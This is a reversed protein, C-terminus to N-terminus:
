KYPLSGGRTFSFLLFFFVNEQREIWSSTESRLDRWVTKLLVVVDSTWPRPIDCFLFINATQSQRVKINHLSSLMLCLLVHKAWIEQLPPRNRALLLARCTHFRSTDATDLHLLVWEKANRLRRFLGRCKSLWNSERRRDDRARWIDLATSCFSPQALIAPADRGVLPETTSRTCTGSVCATATRRWRYSRGEGRIGIHALNDRVEYPLESKCVAGSWTVVFLLNNKEATFHQAREGDLWRITDM